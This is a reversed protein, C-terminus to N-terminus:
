KKREKKRFYVKLNGQLIIQSDLMGNIFLQLLQRSYTVTIQTWKRLSIASVSDLGENALKDTSVRVHLRTDKPWLLISPTMEQSSEGKYILTRWGDMNGPLLFVWFTLTFEYKEYIPNHPIISMDTGNFYASYGRGGLNM